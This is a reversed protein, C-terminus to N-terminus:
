EARGGTEPKVIRTASMRRVELRLEGGGSTLRRYDDLTRVATGNVSLIREYPKIGAVAAAAGPKLAAVVLGPEGPKSRFYHKVEFTEPRLTMGLKRDEYEEVTDFNDPSKEVTLAAEKLVNGSLYFLRIERGTGINTLIRNLANRESLWPVRLKDFYQGPLRDLQAWPFPVPAPMACSATDLDTRGGDPGAIRLLIDGKKLGAKEAPSGTYVHTIILGTRGGSTFQSIGKAEAMLKSMAQCTVGLWANGAWDARPVNGSDCANEFCSLMKLLENASLCIDGGSGGGAGSRVAAPFSVLNFDSDFGFYSGRHFYVLKHLRRRGEDADDLSSRIIETDLRGGNKVVPALYIIGDAEEGFSFKKLRLGKGPLKATEPLVATFAGINRLSADFEAPIERGDCVVTVSKLRATESPPLAALVLVKGDVLLMGTSELLTIKGPSEANSDGSALLSDKRPRHFNLRVIFINDKVLKELAGLKEAGFESAPVTKWQGPPVILEGASRKFRSSFFVTLLRSNQNMVVGNAPLNGYYEARGGDTGTLVLASGSTFKRSRFIWEEGIPSAEFTYFKDEADPKGWEPEKIGPIPTDSRLFVARREPSISEVHAPYEQGRFVLAIREVTEPSIFNDQTVFRGGGVAFGIQRHPLKDALLNKTYSDGGIQPLTGKPSIRLYYLVTVMFDKLVAAHERNMRLLEDTDNKKEAKESKGCKEGKEDAPIDPTAACFGCVAWLSLLVSVTFKGTWDSLFVKKM